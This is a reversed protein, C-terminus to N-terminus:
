EERDKKNERGRDREEKKEPLTSPTDNKIERDRKRLFIVAQLKVIKMRLNKLITERTRLQFLM